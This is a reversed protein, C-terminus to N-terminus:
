LLPVKRALYHDRLIFAYVTKGLPAFVTKPHRLFELMTLSGNPLLIRLLSIVFHSLLFDLDLWIARIKNVAIRGKDLFPL